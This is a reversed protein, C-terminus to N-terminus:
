QHDTLQVCKISYADYWNVFDAVLWSDKWTWKCASDANISGYARHYVTFQFHVAASAIGDKGLTLDVGLPVNIDRYCKWSAAGWGDLAAGQWGAAQCFGAFDVGGRVTGYPGGIEYAHAQKIPGAGVVLSTALIAPIGIRTGIHKVM